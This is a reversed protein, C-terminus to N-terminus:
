VVAAGSGSHRGGSLRFDTRERRSQLVTGVSGCGSVDQRCDGWWSEAGGDSRGAAM